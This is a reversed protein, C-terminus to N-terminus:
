NSWPAKQSFCPDSAGDGDEPKPEPGLEPNSSRREGGKAVAVAVAVRGAGAGDDVLSGAGSIKAGVGAGAWFVLDLAPVSQSLGANREGEDAGDGLGVEDAARDTVADEEVEAEALTVGAGLGGCGGTSGNSKSASSAAVLSARGYVLVFVLALPLFPVLPILVGTDSKSKPSRSPPSSSSSKKPSSPL